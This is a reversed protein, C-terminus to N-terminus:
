VCRSTYLLCDCKAKAEAARCPFQELKVLAAPRDDEALVIRIVLRRPPKPLGPAGEGRCPPVSDPWLVICFNKGAFELGNEIVIQDPM